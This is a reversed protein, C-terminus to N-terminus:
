SRPDGWQSSDAVKVAIAKECSQYVLRALRPWGRAESYERALSTGLTSAYTPHELLMRIANALQDASSPDVLLASEGDRVQEPIGGVRTSIVPLSYAAALAVVGSQTGSTYPLVVISAERFFGDVESEAIWRNTVEVGDLGRLANRYPRMDGSGVIRLRVSHTRRVIRFAQLLIELGKYSTIRGFFLLVPPQPSVREDSREPVTIARPCDNTTPLHATRSSTSGEPTWGV